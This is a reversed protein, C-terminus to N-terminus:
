NPRYLEVSTRNLYGVGVKKALAGAVADWSGPVPADVQRMAEVHGDLFGVNALGAHRFHTGPEAYNDDPGTLYLNETVIPVQGALYPMQVCAGDSMVVTRSTSPFQALTKLDQHPNWPPSTPWVTGGLNYNYAYGGSSGQYLLSVPPNVLDPCQFVRTNREIFPGLLSNTPDVTNANYDIFGCWTLQVTGPDMLNAPPVIGLADHYMQVALLNQKLNNVCQLRRAAGRASQVAPLLLGVLVAIIAIVVLLEILTFGGRGMGSPPRPSSCNEPRDGAGPGVLVLALCGGTEDGSGDDGRADADSSLLFLFQCARKAPAGTPRDTFPCSPGAARDLPSTNLPM